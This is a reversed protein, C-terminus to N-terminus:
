SPAKMHSERVHKAFGPDFSCLAHRIGKKTRFFPQGELVPEDCDQCRGLLAVFKKRRMKAASVPENEAPM